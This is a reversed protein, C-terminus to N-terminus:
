RPSTSSGGQQVDTRTPFEVFIFIGIAPSAQLEGPVGAGRGQAIAVLNAKFLRYESGYSAGTTARTDGAEMVDISLFPQVPWGRAPALGSGDNRCSGAPKRLWRATWTSTTGYKWSAPISVCRRQVGSGRFCTPVANIARRLPSLERAVAAERLSPFCTTQGRPKWLGM